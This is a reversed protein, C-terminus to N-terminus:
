VEIIDDCLTNDIFKTDDMSNLLMNLFNCIRFRVAHDNVDNSTLLFGFLKSLFPCMEKVTNENEEDFSHLNSQFIWPIRLSHIM